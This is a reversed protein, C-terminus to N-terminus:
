EFSKKLDVIKIQIEKTGNWENFGLEYVIDIRDGAQLQNAWEKALGFGITKFQLDGSSNTVTIRLHQKQAGVTDVYKIVLKKSLIRPLPNAQGYPEFKKILTILEHQVHEVSVELDIKLTPVLEMGTLQKTIAKSIITIFEDYDEKKLSFGAAGEHGGYSVLVSEAQALIDAIHLEDISRASGKILGDIETMLFVPKYYENALKGAVLGVLGLPWEESKEAIFLGIEEKDLLEKNVERYIKDAIKQREQNITNLHSALAEAEIQNETLLLALAERAHSIRGAANLRPAIQFGVNWGDMKKNTSSGNEAPSLGAVKMLERLGMNQSKGMVLLGYKVLTRNEGTLPVIDAVTGIAVLDLLWKEFAEHEELSHDFLAQVLKFATGVGCLHKYPYPNDPIDAHIIANANPLLAKGDKIRYEHHDVVIVDIGADRLIQINEVEAVGLDVTIVLDIKQEIVEAVAKPNLGYGEHERHPIYTKVDSFGIRSLGKYLVTTGTVGDADYDGYIMVSQKKDLAVFIRDVADHMGKMLFPDHTDLDWDSRLFATIKEPEKIGRNFLLQLIVPNIEPFQAKIEESIPRFVRWKKAM